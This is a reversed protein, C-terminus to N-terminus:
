FRWRADARKISLRIPRRQMRKTQLWRNIRRTGFGDGSGALIRLAERIRSRNYSEGRTTSSTEISAHKPSGSKLCTYRTSQRREKGIRRKRRQKADDRAQLATERQKVAEARQEAHM